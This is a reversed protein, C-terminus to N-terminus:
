ARIVQRIIKIWQTMKSQHLQLLFLFLIGILNLVIAVLNFGSELTNSNIFHYFYSGIILLILYAGNTITSFQLLKSYNITALSRNKVMIVISISLLSWVVYQNGGAEFFDSLMKLLSDEAPRTFSDQWPILLRNSLLSWAAYLGFFSLGFSVVNRLRQWPSLISEFTKKISQPTGLREELIGQSMEQDPKLENERIDEAHDKIEQTLRDQYQNGELSRHIDSFYDNM